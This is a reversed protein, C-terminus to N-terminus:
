RCQTILKDIKSQSKFHEVGGFALVLISPIKNDPCIKAM